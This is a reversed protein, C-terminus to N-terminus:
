SSPYHLLAAAAGPLTEDFVATIVYTGARTSSSTSITLIGTAPSYSCTAGAPLNLCTASVSTASTPLTVAFSATAGPAISASTTSFAPGAGSDASDVEFQMANSTGGGPAPTEVTIATVGSVIQAAPVQATLQSASVLQTPLATSGWYVTSGPAFGSGTVTLAFAAGGASTFAPSLRTLAPLANPGTVNITVSNSTSSGFLGAGVYTASIVDAGAPLSTTTM